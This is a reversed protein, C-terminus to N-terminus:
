RIFVEFIGHNGQAANIAMATLYHGGVHGDLGDWNPYPKAKPQLGAEKLYPALLRDCDYKLLTQVNLDCAKKLVGDLLTVDGIPFEDAYLKNQAEAGSVLLAALATVVFKKM